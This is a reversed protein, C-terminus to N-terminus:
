PRVVHVSPMRVTRPSDPAVKEIYCVVNGYQQRVQDLLVLKDEGSAIVKGQYIAVYKGAYQKLLDAKQQEFAAIEKVFAQEIEDTKPENLHEAVWEIVLDDTTKQQAVAKQRVADYLEQPLQIVNQM